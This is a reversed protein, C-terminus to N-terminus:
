HRSNLRTSKRDLNMMEYDPMDIGAWSPSSTPKLEGTADLAIDEERVLSTLACSEVGATTTDCMTRLSDVFVTQCTGPFSGPPLWAFSEILSGQLVRFRLTNMLKPQLRQKSAM